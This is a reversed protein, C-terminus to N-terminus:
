RHYPVWSAATRVWPHRTTGGKELPLGGSSDHALRRIQQNTKIIRKMLAVLPINVLNEEKKEKKKREKEVESQSVVGEWGMVRGSRGEDGRRGDVVVEVM